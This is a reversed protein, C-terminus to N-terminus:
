RRRGRDRVGGSSDLRGAGTLWGLQLASWLLGPDTAPTIVKVRGTPAKWAPDPPRVLILPITGKWPGCRDTIERARTLREIEPLSAGAWSWTEERVATQILGAQTESALSCAFRERATLRGAPSRALYGPDSIVSSILTPLDSTIWVAGGSLHGVAYFTPITKPQEKSMGPGHAASRLRGACPREM